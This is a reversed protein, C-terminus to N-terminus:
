AHVQTSLNNDPTCTNQHFTLMGGGGGGLNGFFYYFALVLCSLNVHLAAAFHIDYIITDKAERALISHLIQLKCAEAAYAAADILRM